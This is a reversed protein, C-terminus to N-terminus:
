EDGQIRKLKITLSYGHAYDKLIIGGPYLFGEHESYEYYLVRWKLVGDESYRKEALVGDSGKFVHVMRGNGVSNRFSLRYKSVRAKAEGSPVLNLYIRRIDAAVVKVFDGNKAIASSLFSKHISDADGEIEILKLGIPNIGALAFRGSEPWVQIMALSCVHVSFNYRYTLTAILNVEEPIKRGFDAAIVEPTADRVAERPYKEFPVPSCASIALAVSILLTATRTARAM